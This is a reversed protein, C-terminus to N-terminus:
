HILLDTVHHFIVLVAETILRVYLINCTTSGLVKAINRIVPYPLNGWDHQTTDSEDSEMELNEDGVLRMRKAQNM